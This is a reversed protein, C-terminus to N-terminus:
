FDYDYINAGGLQAECKYVGTAMYFPCRCIHCKSGCEDELNFFISHFAKYAKERTMNKDYDKGLSKVCLTCRFDRDLQHDNTLVCDVPCEKSCENKSYYKNACFAMIRSLASVIFINTDKDERNEFFEDSFIIKKIEEEDNYKSLIRNIKNANIRPTFSM